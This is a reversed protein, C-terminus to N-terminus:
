ARMTALVSTLTRHLEGRELESLELAVSLDPPKPWSQDTFTKGLIKRPSDYRPIVHFHVHPDVMMLMLYNIKNFEFVQRLSNEVLSIAHGLESYESDKLEGFNTADSNNIIILSGLTVQQPRLLVSWFNMEKVCSAPYGFKTMTSNPTGM